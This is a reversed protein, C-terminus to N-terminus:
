DWVCPCAWEREPEPENLEDMARELAAPLRWFGEPPMPVGEFLSENCRFCCHHNGYTTNSNSLFSTNTSATPPSRPLGTHIYLAVNYAGKKGRRAEGSFGRLSTDRIESMEM